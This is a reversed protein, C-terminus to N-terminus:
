RAQRGLLSPLRHSRTRCKVAEEYLAGHAAAIRAWDFKEVYQMGARSMADARRPNEIIGTAELYAADPTEAFAVVQDIAPPQFPGRTTIVPLGNGLAAILSGRRDSVGDPYPLYAMTASRLLDSAEDDSPNIHWDLRTGAMETRLRDLYGTAWTVPSGIVQFSWTDGNRAAIKALELFSELGRGPKIQGFHAIIKEASVRRPLFPINSGIPIMVMKARSRPFEALFRAREFETTEILRAASLGFAEMSARRFRTFISFEHLTVVQPINILFGTLHPGASRWGVIMPYQMHIIDPALAGIKSRLRLTGPVSWDRHDLIKAALGRRCLADALRQAYDHVGCRGQPPSGTVLCVKLPVAAAHPHDIVDFAASSNSAVNMM